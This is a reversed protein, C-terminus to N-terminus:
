LLTSVTSGYIYLIKLLTFIYLHSSLFYKPRRDLQQHEQQDADVRGLREGAARQEGGHEASVDEDHHEAEEVVDEQDDEVGEGVLLLSAGLLAGLPHDPQHVDAHRASEHHGEEEGHEEVNEGGWEQNHISHYKCFYTKFLVQM